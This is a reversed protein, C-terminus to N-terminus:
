PDFTGRQITFTNGAIQIGGDGGHVHVRGDRGLRTGQRATFPPTVLGEEVLWEAISANLSGTVPDELMRGRDDSFFARVEYVYPSGPEAMGVVGIDLPCDGEFRRFDPELSLVSGADRLLFGAWGPGNDVWRSSVVDALDVGLVRVMRRHLEDDIPGSRMLPPARFALRGDVRAISVMGAGCEQVIEESRRPVGDESLWAHCSGLTPHGAFPLEGALTFIRVRYDASDDTPPLVFTTESFGLWRTIELMDAADLVDADFVVALPNGALPRAGFVDILHFRM